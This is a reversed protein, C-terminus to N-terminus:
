SVLATPESDCHLNLRQGNNVLAVFFLSSVRKTVEKSQIVSFFFSSLIYAHRIGLASTDPSNRDSSASISSPPLIAVLLRFFM